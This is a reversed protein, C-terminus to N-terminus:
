GRATAPQPPRCDGIDFMIKIKTGAVHRHNGALLIVLILLTGLFHAFVPASGGTERLPRRDGRCGICGDGHGGFHNWAEPSPSVPGELLTHILEDVNTMGTHGPCRHNQKSGLLTLAM